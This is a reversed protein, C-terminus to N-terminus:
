AQGETRVPPKAARADAPATPTQKLKSKLGGVGRDPAAADNAVPAATNEVPIRDNPIDMAEEAMYLGGLVDAFLDRCAFARARMKLMRRPHQQWPGKKGWLQAVKADEITYREVVVEEGRRIECVSAFDGSPWQGETYERFGTMQGSARIMGIVADGWISPRGNIIAIRQVSQMPQLGVELGHAMAVFVAQPNALDRPALGSEFVMKSLRWLGEMDTPRLGRETLSVPSAKAAVPSRDEEKRRPEDVARVLAAAVAVPPHDEENDAPPDADVAAGELAAVFQPVVPEAAALSLQENQM